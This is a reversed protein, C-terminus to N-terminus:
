HAPSALPKGKAVVWTVILKIGDPGSRVDHVTGAALKYSQGVALSLPPQGDVLIAGSGQLVYGAEPGPHSHRGGDRNPALESLAIVTEYDTGPVDFRQLITRKITQPEASMTMQAHALGAIAVMAIAVAAYFVAPMRMADEGFHNCRSIWACLRSWTKSLDCTGLLLTAIQARAIGSENRANAEGMQSSMGIPFVSVPVWHNAFGAASARVGPKRAPPSLRIERMM